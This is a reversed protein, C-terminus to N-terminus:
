NNLYILLQALSDWFYNFAQDPNMQYIKQCASLDYQAASFAQPVKRLKELSHQKGKFDSLLWLENLHKTMVQGSLHLQYNQLLRFPKNSNQDLLSLHRYILKDLTLESLNLKRDQEYRVLEERLKLELIAKLEECNLLQFLIQNTLKQIPYLQIALDQEKEQGIQHCAFNLLVGVPWEDVLYSQQRGDKYHLIIRYIIGLEAMLPIESTDNLLTHLANLQEALISHQKFRLEGFILQDENSNNTQTKLKISTFESAIIPLDEFFSTRLTVAYLQDIPKDLSEDLLLAEFDIKQKLERQYNAIIKHLSHRSDVMKDALSNPQLYAEENLFEAFFPALILQAQPSQLIMEAHYAVMERNRQMLLKQEFPPLSHFYYIIRDYDKERMSAYIALELTTQLVDALDENNFENTTFANPFSIINSTPEHKDAM